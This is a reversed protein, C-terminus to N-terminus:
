KQYFTLIVILNRATVDVHIVQGKNNNKDFGLGLKRRWFIKKLDFLYFGKSRLVCSLKM